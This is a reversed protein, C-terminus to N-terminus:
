KVHKWTQRWVIFNITGRVVHYRSAIHTATEGKAYARRIERIQSNTFKSKHNDEGKPAHTFDFRGKRLADQANDTASGVFLHHHNCCQRRDCHHCVFLGKPIPGHELEYAVRHAYLPVSDKNGSNLMGYGMPAIYGQWDWCEDDSRVDVKEWFREAITRRKTM